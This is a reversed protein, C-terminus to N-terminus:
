TRGTACRDRDGQTGHGRGRDPGARGDSRRAVRSSEADRRPRGDRRSPYARLQELYRDLVAPAAPRRGIKAMSSDGRGIGLVARGASALQLAIAASATVAPDRTVPNTVGPGLQIRDTAAAALMLQGWVEPTLNQTDAFALSDFGLGEAMRATNASGDASPFTILGIEM